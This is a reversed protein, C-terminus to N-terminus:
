DAVPAAGASSAMCCVKTSGSASFLLTSVALHPGSIVMNCLREDKESLRTSDKEPPETNISESKEESLWQTSASAGSLALSSFENINKESEGKQRLLDIIRWSPPTSISRVKVFM